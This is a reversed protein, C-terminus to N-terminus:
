QILCPLFGRCKFQVFFQSAYYEFGAAGALLMFACGVLIANRGLRPRLPNLKATISIM